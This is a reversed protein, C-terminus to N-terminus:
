ISIYCKDSMMKKRMNKKLEKNQNKAFVKM